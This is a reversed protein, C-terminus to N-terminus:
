KLSKIYEIIANIEADNVIGKFVPMQPAYGKVIKANPNEISERIYNEDVTGKSGDAFEVEHGFIGKYSPGIRKSGDDSHCAVCGKTGMLRKGQDALSETPAAQGSGGAGSGLVPAIQKGAKWHNWDTENLAIVQGLMGSHAAGCYEACFIQHKGEIPTEFWVSTYMGPVVDQKIRFNPVFFSHLVDESTMVLKVARNVPVYLENTTVRGDDYQFQWLWQKGLVKIEYADSPPQVMEKYVRWGWVFIGLVLFTPIITWILELGTHGHIDASESSKRHHYKVAFIGMAILIGVFFFISVAVLFIYLQDWHSAATTGAVPLTGFMSM